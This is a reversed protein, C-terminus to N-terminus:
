FIIIHTKLHGSKIIQKGIYFKIGIISKCLVWVGTCLYLIGLLAIIWEKLNFTKLIISAFRIGM